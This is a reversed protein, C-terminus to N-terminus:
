GTISVGDLVSKSAQNEISINSAEAPDGVGMIAVARDM